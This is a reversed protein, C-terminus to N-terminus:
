ENIKLHDMFGKLLPVDKSAPAIEFRSNLDIAYLPLGEIQLIAEADGPGIGGSLFFPKSYPYRSLLQWEFQKGSGGRENCRTDFLFYECDDMYSQVLEFDFSNDVGFSKIVSVGMNKLERCYEPSEDGHIQAYHLGLRNQWRIVDQLLANVFVGVKKISQPIQATLTYDEGLFRKSPPYLIFGLFDPKLTVVEEINRTDRM